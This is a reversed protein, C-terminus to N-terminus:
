KFWLGRFPALVYELAFLSGGIILVLITIYVARKHFKLKVFFNPIFKLWSLDFKIPPSQIKSEIIQPKIETPALTVVPVAVESGGKHTNTEIQAVLKSIHSLLINTDKLREAIETTKWYWTVLERIILFILVLIALFFILHILDVPFGLINVISDNAQPLPTYGFPNM